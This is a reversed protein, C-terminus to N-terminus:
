PGWYDFYYTVGEKVLIEIGTGCEVGHNGPQVEGKENIGHPWEEKDVYLPGCEGGNDDEIVLYTKGDGSLKYRGRLEYTANPDKNLIQPVVIVLVAVVLLLPIIVIASFLKKL